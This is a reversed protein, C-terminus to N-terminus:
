DFVNATGNSCENNKHDVFADCQEEKKIILKMPMEEELCCQEELLRQYEEIANPHNNTDQKILSEQLRRKLQKRDKARRNQFWIKIQRSSLGLRESLESKRKATLYKCFFTFERELETRQFDTYVVRYKDRTRTM